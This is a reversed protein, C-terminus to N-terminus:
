RSQTPGGVELDVACGIGEGVGWCAGRSSMM